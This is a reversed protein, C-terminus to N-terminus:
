MKFMDEQQVQMIVNMTKHQAEMLIKKDKLEKLSSAVFEGFIDTSSRMERKEKAETTVRDLLTTAKEVLIDDAVLGGERQYVVMAGM